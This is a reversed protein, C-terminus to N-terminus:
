ENHQNSVIHRRHSDSVLRIFCNLLQHITEPKDESYEHLGPPRQAGMTTFHTQQNKCCIAHKPAKSDRRAQHRRRHKEHPQDVTALPPPQALKHWALLARAVIRPMPPGIYEFGATLRTAAHAVVDGAGALSPARTM